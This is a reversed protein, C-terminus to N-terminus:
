AALKRAEAGVGFLEAVFDDVHPALDVVLQAEDKRELAEPAARAVALREPLTDDVGGLHEHFLTDIRLLGDRAYLDVFALGHALELESM